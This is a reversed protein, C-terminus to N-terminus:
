FSKTCCSPISSVILYVNFLCIFALCMIILDVMGYGDKANRHRGPSGQPLLILFVTQVSPHLLITVSRTTYKSLINQGTTHISNLIM